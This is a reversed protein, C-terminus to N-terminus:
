RLERMKDYKQIKINEWKRIVERERRLKRFYIAPVAAATGAEERRVEQPNPSARLRASEEAIVVRTLGLEPSATERRPYPM